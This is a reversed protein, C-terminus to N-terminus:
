RFVSLRAPKSRPRGLGRGVIELSKGLEAQPLTISAYEPNDSLASLTNPDVTKLRKLQSIRNKYRILYIFEEFPDSLAHDILVVDGVDVDARHRTRSGFTCRFQEEPSQASFKLRLWETRFLFNQNPGKECFEPPSVSRGDMSFQRIRIYANEEEIQIPGEGTILWALSVGGARALKPLASLPPDSKDFYRRITSQPVGAAKALATVSGVRLALMRLRGRFTDEEQESDEAESNVGVLM